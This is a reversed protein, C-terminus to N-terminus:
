YLKTGAPVGTIGQYQLHLGGQPKQGEGFGNGQEDSSSRHRTSKTPQSQNDVARQQTEQASALGFSCLAFVLFYFAKSVKM